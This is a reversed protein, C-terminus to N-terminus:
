IDKEKQKMELHILNNPEFKICRDKELDLPCEHCSGSIITGSGVVYWHSVAKHTCTCHFDWPIGFEEIQKKDLSKLTVNM